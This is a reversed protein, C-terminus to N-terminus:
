GTVAGDPACQHLEARVTLLKLHAAIETELKSAATLNPLAQRIVRHVRRARGGRRRWGRLAQLLLPGGLGGDADLVIAVNINELRNDSAQIQYIDITSVM